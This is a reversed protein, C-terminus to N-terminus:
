QSSGPWKSGVARRPAGALAICVGQGAVLGAAVLGFRRREARAPLPRCSRPTRRLNYQRHRSGCVVLLAIAAPLPPPPSSAAAARVRAARARWLLQLRVVPRVLRTLALGGVVAGTPQAALLLGIATPGGEGYPAALAEPVVWFFSLWALLVLGRLRPDGFAM